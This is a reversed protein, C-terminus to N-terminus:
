EDEDTKWQDALMNIEWNRDHTKYNVDRIETPVIEENDSSEIDIQVSDPTATTVDPSTQNFKERRVSTEDWSRRKDTEKLKSGLETDLSKSRIQRIEYQIRSNITEILRKQQYQFIEKEKAKQEELLIKANEAKQLSELLTIQQISKDFFEKQKVLNSDSKFTELIENNQGQLLKYREEAIKLRRYKDHEIKRKSAYEKLEEEKDNSKEGESTADLSKWNKINFEKNGKKTQPGGSYSSQHILPSQEQNPQDYKFNSPSSPPSRCYITDISDDRMFPIDDEDESMMQYEGSMGESEEENDSEYLHEGLSSYDQGFELNFLSPDVNDSSNYIQNRLREIILDRKQIESELHAFHDSFKSEMQYLHDEIVTKIGGLVNSFYEEENSIMKKKTFKRRIRFKSKPKNNVKSESNNASPYPILDPNLNLGPSINSDSGGNQQTNTTSSNSNSLSSTVLDSFPTNLSESALLGSNSISSVQSLLPGTRTIPITSIDVSFCSSQESAQASFPTISILPQSFTQSNSSSVPESSLYPLNLSKFTPLIPTLFSGQSPSICVTSRSTTSLLTKMTENSPSPSSETIPTLSFFRKGDDTLNDSTGPEQNDKLLPSLLPSLNLPSKPPSTFTDNFTVSKTLKSRRAAYGEVTPSRMLKKLEKKNDVVDDIDASIRKLISKLCQREITENSDTLTNEEETLDSDFSILTDETQMRQVNRMAVGVDIVFADSNSRTLDSSDLNSDITSLTSSDLSVSKTFVKSELEALKQRENLIKLKKVFPLGAYEPSLDEISNYLKKNKLVGKHQLPQGITANSCGTNIVEDSKSAVLITANKLKTWPQSSSGTSSSGSSESQQQNITLSLSNSPTKDLSKTGAGKLLSTKAANNSELSVKQVPENEAKQECVSTRKPKPSPVHAHTHQTRVTSSLIQAASTATDKIMRKEKEEKQKLLKLRQFLPLGQGVVENDVDCTKTPILSVSKQPSPLLSISKQISPILCQQLEGKAPTENSKALSSSLLLDASEKERLLKLRALIPLGAGIKSDCPPTSTEDDQSNDDSCVRKMRTMKPKEGGSKSGQTLPELEFSEDRGKTLRGKRLFGLSRVDQRIKDVISGSGAMSKMSKVDADPTTDSSNGRGKARDAEAKFMKNMNKAEMLRKRGLNQLIEQAEPYDKMASLVDERSLSFLEAYGVSRVDATRRIVELIGDAIIFMERAVEGKRCILDGPTFIYAKMKLVLDHLFEPQCEQFITVKKLVVLNVHLALETKLKDPLLGLATNIDGGGQIRGRSWSYDYWRLVRRKMGGPVKHHRMYTKAGDLLREFELRNANRNTIVNGVQGVITAFIFVGMLYSVM